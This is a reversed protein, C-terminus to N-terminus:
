SRRSIGTAGEGLPGAAAAGLSLEPARWFVAAVSQISGGAGLYGAAREGGSGANM